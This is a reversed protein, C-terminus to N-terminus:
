IGREFWDFFDVRVSPSLICVIFQGMHQKWWVCTAYESLLYLEETNKKSISNIYGNNLMYSYMYFTPSSQFADEDQHLNLTPTHGKPIENNTPIQTENCWFISGQNEENM